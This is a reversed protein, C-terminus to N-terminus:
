LGVNIGIMLRRAQPYTFFDTGMRLNDNGAYNIEPDMGSYNTFTLLNYGSVFVKLHQFGIKKLWDENFQYSIALEKLRLYSGDEIFRSSARNNNNPDALTARPISTQDGVNQWRDLITTLQNDEGKLSEIYVRTGNYIDNGYSYQFFMRMSWNKYTLTNDLGGFLDPNPDGIKTRDDATIEGDGNVDDFVIDGTSPDVGLSRYGYFIGLPEGVGIYNSGRGINDIPQGNYLELVENKNATVTFTATWKFHDNRVIDGIVALEVGKNEMEGINDWVSGFGSSLPIPRALLLDTTRTYYYDFNFTLRSDLISLDFGVDLQKSTEWKLDPNPMQVPYIGPQRDYNGRGDYLSLSGFRAIEDNGTLGYSARIKFENILKQNQMFAEETVRWAASAAPFFGYKNNAGFNSSGDYRASFNLLYKNNMNYKVKGFFSNTRDEVISSSADTISAASVLYQFNENPFDTGRIFSRRDVFREYSYGLLAEFEDTQRIATSYRLLNNTNFNSARTNADYGLGNYKQGQRTTVPDYSHEELSLYDIAWKTEFSLGDLIFYNAFVNALTRFNQSENVAENAIAVPNAYPGEENYTGDANYVPYIAPLSIANPLPGNLSQDGEVRNNKSNSLSVGAGIKLRKNVQHDLNLRGSLRSYDTGILIGTEDLYNGSIFFKTKENGGSANLEYNSLIGNRFVENLWNTNISPNAIEDDSFIPPAGENVKQENRYQMWQSADIMELKKAVQQVGTSANFQFRTKNQSGRKTTILIVGRSARAGYLATAAADKLITMSEIDSPNIDSIASITQGSYGIQSFDGSMIPVGDVVYLPQNNASISNNGRIRVSVGGGPTGSNQTVQVGTVRGQMAADLNTVPVEDLNSPKFDSVSSTLLKRSETGFGVVVVEDLGVQDDELSVEFVRQEGIPLEVTKMGVLSFVLIQKTDKVTLSFSGDLDTITGRMSGKLFVNVGPASTGDEALTVKGTITAEKKEPEEDQTVEQKKEEPKLVLYNDVVKYTLSSGNLITKMAEDLNANEFAASVKQEPKILDNNILFLLGSQEAVKQVADALPEDQFRLSIANNQTYGGAQVQVLGIILLFAFLKM